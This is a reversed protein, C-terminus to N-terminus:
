PSYTNNGTLIWTGTGSKVASMIGFGNVTGPAGNNDDIALAFINAGTNNGTLTFTSVINANAYALPGTNTFNIAGTGSSDLTGLISFGTGVTVGRDTSDGAGIYQLTGGNLVLNSAANSSEGISSVVGGNALKSIVLTGGTVNTAGTYTNSNGSRTLTSPQEGEDTM